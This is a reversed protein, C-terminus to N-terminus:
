ERSNIVAEDPVAAKEVSPSPEGARTEAKAIQADHAPPPTASESAGIDIEGSSKDKELKSGPAAGPLAPRLAGAPAVVGPLKRFIVRSTERCVVNVKGSASLYTTPKEGVGIRLTKDGCPVAIKANVPGIAINESFIFAPEPFRVVLYGYRDALLRGKGSQNEQVLPYGPIDGGPDPLVVSDGNSLSGPSAGIPESLADSTGSPSPIAPSVAENVQPSPNNVVPQLKAQEKREQESVLHTALTGGAALMALGVAISLGVSRGRRAPPQKRNAAGLPSDLTEELRDAGGEDHGLSSLVEELSRRETTDDVLRNSRTALGLPRGSADPRLIATESDPFGVLSVARMEGSEGAFYPRKVVDTSDPHIGDSVDQLADSEATDGLRRAADLVPETRLNPDSQPSSPATVANGGPRPPSTVPRVGAPAAAVSVDSAGPLTLSKADQLKTEVGDEMM